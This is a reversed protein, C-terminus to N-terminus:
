GESGQAQEARCARCCFIFAIEKDDVLDCESLEAIASCGPTPAPMGKVLTVYEPLDDAVSKPYAVRAAQAVVLEFDDACRVHSCLVMSQIAFANTYRQGKLQADSAKGVGGWQRKNNDVKHQLMQSRSMHRALGVLWTSWMNCEDTTEEQDQPTWSGRRLSGLWGQMTMALSPLRNPLMSENGLQMQLLAM